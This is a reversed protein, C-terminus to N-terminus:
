EHASQESQDPSQLTADMNLMDLVYRQLKALRAQNDCLRQNCEQCLFELYNRELSFKSRCYIPVEMSSTSRIALMFKNAKGLSIGSNRCGAGLAVRLLRTASESDSCQVHLIFPEYKLWICRPEAESIEDSNLLEIRHVLDKLPLGEHNSLHFKNGEKRNSQGLPKEILTIRGSCSSTTYYHPSGNLLDILPRIPGDISGKLSLDSRNM